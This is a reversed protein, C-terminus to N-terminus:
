LPAAKRSFLEGHAKDKQREVGVGGMRLPLVWEGQQLSRGRLISSLVFM